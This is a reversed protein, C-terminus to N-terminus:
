KSLRPPPLSRSRTLAIGQLTCHLVTRFECYEYQVPGLGRRLKRTDRHHKYTSCAAWAMIGPLTTNSRKFDNGCSSTPEPTQRFRIPSSSSSTERVIIKDTEIVCLVYVHNRM